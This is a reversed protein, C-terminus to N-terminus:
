PKRFIGIDPPNYTFVLFCASLLLLLVAPLTEFNKLRCSLTLRYVAYFAILVSIIFTLIDLFLINRGLIGSYTYFIVPILFTGLIISFLLASTVCSYQSKLKHNMYFSYFLMPFFILKMHEWTSENVPSIFGVIYNNGSWEYIFHFLTGVILTFIIGAVTYIKLKNM